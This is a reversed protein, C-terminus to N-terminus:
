EDDAEKLEIVQYTEGIYENDSPCGTTIMTLFEGGKYDVEFSDGEKGYEVYTELKEMTEVISKSAIDKRSKRYVDDDYNCTRLLEADGSPNSLIWGILIDKLYDSAEVEEEFFSVKTIDISRDYRGKDANIVIFM